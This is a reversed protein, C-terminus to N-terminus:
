AAGREPACRWLHIMMRLSRAVHSSGSTDLWYFRGKAGVALIARKINERSYPAHQLAGEANMWYLIQKHGYRARRQLSALELANM